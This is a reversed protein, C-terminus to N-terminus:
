VFQYLAAGEDNLGSDKYWCNTYLKFYSPLANGREYGIERALVAYSEEVITPVLSDDLIQVSGGGVLDLFIGSDSITYGNYQAPDIGCSELYKEFDYYELRKPYSKGPFMDYPLIVEEGNDDLKMLYIDLGM